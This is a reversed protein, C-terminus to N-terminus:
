RVALTHAASTPADAAEEAMVRDQCRVCYKAWPIAQLRRPPIAEDCALCVGYHGSDLRDLAEQVLRLKQYEMRNLSLNVFEEHTVQAQDEEGVRGAMALVDAKFGLNALVESKSRHLVDRYEVGLQSGGNGPQKHGNGPQKHGNGPKKHGNDAQQRGNVPRRNDNSSKKM